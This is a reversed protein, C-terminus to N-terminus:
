KNIVRLKLRVVKHSVDFAGGQEALEVRKTVFGDFGGGDKALQAAVGVHLRDVPQVLQQLLLIGVHQADDLM